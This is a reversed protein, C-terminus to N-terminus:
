EDDIMEEISTESSDAIENISGYESIDDDKEEPASDKSHSISGLTAFISHYFTHKQNDGAYTSHRYDHESMDLMSLEVQTEQELPIYLLWPVPVDHWRGDGGHVPIFDVRTVTRYSLAHVSIKDIDKETSLLKTKLIAPTVSAPHALSAFGIRNAMVESERVTYNREYSDRYIYEHPKIQQYMPISLLPAFDFYVSRFYDDNLSVFAKRCLDVDYSIYQTIDINFNWSQAHESAIINICNKKILNFDDGYPSDGKIIGLINKQALPTFLLRFQVEHNRDFAGFLADFEDNGLETFGSDMNQKAFKKIKKIRSRVFSKRKSDSMKDAHTKSRSFSLDPAAENGYVLNTSYSFFPKPKRVSAQLVQSHHQTERKGNVVTSTTWHITKTGTYVQSGWVHNLKRVFVYPNGIVEGSMIGVTSVEDGDDEAYGYKGHLYDYRRMDYNRDVVLTPVTKQILEATMSSDFLDLLPAILEMAYEYLQNAKEDSSTFEQQLCKIKKNLISFILISASVFALASIVITAINSISIGYIAVFSCIVALIILLVRGTKMGSLKKKFTRAEDSIKRYEEATLRNEEVSINSQKILDDFLDNANKLFREKYYNNYASCPELLRDSDNTIIM